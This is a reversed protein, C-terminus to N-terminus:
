KKEVRTALMRYTVTVKDGAKVDAGKTSEDVVFDWVEGGKDVSLQTKSADKVSGSYQYTRGAALATVAGGLVIGAAVGPLFRDLKM